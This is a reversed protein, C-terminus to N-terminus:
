APDSEKQVTIRDLLENNVTIGFGSSKPLNKINGQWVPAHAGTAPDHKLLIKPFAFEHHLQPGLAAMFEQQAATLISTEGVLVGLQCELGAEKMKEYINLCGSFGGCKALRINFLNCAKENILLDADDSTCLSEDAMIKLGAESTVKVMGKINKGGVPQEISTVHYKKLMESVKIAEDTKWAANADVRIDTKNGCIKRVASLRDEDNEFGVKLKIDRFDLLRFARTILKTKFKNRSGVPGTHFYDPNNDAAPRPTIVSRAPCDFAKGAADICALEIGAFSATHRSKDADVYIEHMAPLLQNYSEVDLEKVRPWWRRLIDHWVSEMTEGTLYDRPITEGFGTWGCETTVKIIFNNAERRSALAHSYSFRFPVSIERVEIKKFRIGM